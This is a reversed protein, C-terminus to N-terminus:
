PLGGHIPLPGVPEKRPAQNRGRILSPKVRATAVPSGVFTTPTFERARVESDLRCQGLSAVGDNRRQGGKKQPASSIFFGRHSYASRPDRHWGRCLIPLLFIEEGRPSIAGPIKM